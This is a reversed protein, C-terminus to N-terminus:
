KRFFEKTFPIIKPIRTRANSGSGTYKKFTEDDHLEKVKDLLLNNDDPFNYQEINEALGITVAEFASELFKGKFKTGDYRKFADDNLVENITSFVNEFEIKTNEYDFDDDNLIIEIVEDFFDSLEKKTTYEYKTLAIFRLVLEM